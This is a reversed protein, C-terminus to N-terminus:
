NKIQEYEKKVKAFEAEFDFPKTISFNPFVVYDLLSVWRREQEMWQKIHQQRNTLM